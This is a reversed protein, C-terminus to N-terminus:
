KIKLRKKAFFQATITNLVLKYTDLEKFKAVSAEKAESAKAKLEGM